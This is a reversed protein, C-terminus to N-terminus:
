KDNLGNRCGMPSLGQCPFGGVVVDVEKEKLTALRDGRLESIDNFIPARPLTGDAMRARLVNRCEYSIDCYGVPEVVGKLATTMGGISTFLDLSRLM